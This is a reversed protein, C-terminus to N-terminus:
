FLSRLCENLPVMNEDLHAVRIIVLLNTHGARNRNRANEMAVMCIWRIWSPLAGSLIRCNDKMRIANRKWVVLPVITYQSRLLCNQM